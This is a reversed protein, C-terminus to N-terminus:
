AAPRRDGSLERGDFILVSAHRDLHFANRQRFPPFPSSPGWACAPPPWFRAATQSHGPLPRSLPLVAGDCVTSPSITPEIVLPVAAQTMAPVCSAGTNRQCPMPFASEPSDSLVFVDRLWAPSTRAFEPALSPVQVRISLGSSELDLADVLEAVRAFIVKIGCVGSERLGRGARGETGSPLPCPGAVPVCVNGFRAVPDSAPVRSKRCAVKGPSFRPLGPITVPFPEGKGAPM